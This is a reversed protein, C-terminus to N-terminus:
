RLVESADHLCRLRLLRFRDLTADRSQGPAEQRFHCGLLMLEPPCFTLTTSAPAMHMAPACHLM